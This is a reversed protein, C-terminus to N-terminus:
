VSAIAVFAGINRQVWELAFQQDMLGYNANTHGETDIAPHAFFGLVGLRYNITVVIVGGGEVLPTPDYDLGTGTVFAGGHIWVMVALGHHKNENKKQHPRYINLLLCDESGVTGGAGDPQVCIHGFNIQTAQLVGHWRGHPQPPLWRREGVPPAAYPISLFQDETPTEIGKIPGDETVIAPAAAGTLASGINAACIVALGCLLRLGFLRICKKAKESTNM